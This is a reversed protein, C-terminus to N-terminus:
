CNYHGSEVLPDEACLVLRAYAAATSPNGYAEVEPAVAWFLKLGRARKAWSEIKAILAAAAECVTAHPMRVMIEFDAGSIKEEDVRLTTGTLGFASIDRGGPFRQKLGEFYVDLFEQAQGKDQPVGSIKITVESVM